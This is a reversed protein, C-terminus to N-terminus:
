QHQFCLSLLCYDIKYIRFLICIEILASVSGNFCCIPFRYGPPDFIGQQGIVGMTLEIDQDLLRLSLQHFGIHLSCDLM